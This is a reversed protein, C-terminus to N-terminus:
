CALSTPLVAPHNTLATITPSPAFLLPSSSLSSSLLVHSIFAFLENNNGPAVSAASDITNDNTHCLHAELMTACVNCPM